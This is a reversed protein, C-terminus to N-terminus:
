PRLVMTDIRHTKNLKDTVIMTIPCQVCKRTVMDTKPWEWNCIASACTVLTSSGTKLVVQKVNDVDSYFSFVRVVTKDDSPFASLSISTTDNILGLAHVKPATQAQASSLLLLSFLAVLKM